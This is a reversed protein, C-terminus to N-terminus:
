RKCTDAVHASTLCTVEVEWDPSGQFYTTCFCLVTVNYGAITFGSLDTYSNM